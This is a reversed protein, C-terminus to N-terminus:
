GLRAPGRWVPGAIRRAGEIWRDLVYVAWVRAWLRDEGALFRRWLTDVALTDLYPGAHELHQLRAAVDSRLAGRLWNAFPLVFGRKGGPRHHGVEPVAAALLPKQDRRKVRWRPPLSLVYEVLSEDLFPVRVELSHRMAMVDTDRLLTNSLYNSLELVTQADLDARDGVEAASLLGSLGDARSGDLTGAALEELMRQPLLSRRVAYIAEPRGLAQVLSFAKDLRLDRSRLRSLLPALALLPAQLRTALRYSWRHLHASRLHGYGAFLEDGGLGSLAVTIGARRVARSIIWTNPGDFSPQDFAGIIEDLHVLAEDQEVPVLHHRVGLRGAFRSAEAEESWAADAGRFVVTFTDVDRERLEAACTALATSDMGASLFVGVPVDSVLQAKVSDKLRARVEMAAAAEDHLDSRLRPPSWYRRVELRGERFIALHGPALEEVGKVITTPSAVSGFALYSAVGHPNVEFPVGAALLARVESGATLGGDHRALYLPKIGIRDRGLLLSGDRGDWYAFAFMGQIRSLADPGWQELARLLVETDSRSRFSHGLRALDARLAEFRYIEGNFALRVAPDAGAMPQAAAESLDIIKLRAHALRVDLGRATAEYLGSADPGRHHLAAAIRGVDPRPQGVPMVQAVFGCM